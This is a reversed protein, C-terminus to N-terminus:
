RGRGVDLTGLAKLSKRLRPLLTEGLRHRKGKPRPHLYDVILGRPLIFGGLNLSCSTEEYLSTSLTKHGNPRISCFSSRVWLILKCKPKFSRCRAGLSPHTGNRRKREILSLKSSGLLGQYPNEKWQLFMVRFPETGIKLHIWRDVRSLFVWWLFEIVVPIIALLSLSRSTLDFLLPSSNVRWFNPFPVVQSRFIPSEKTPHGSGPPIPLVFIPYM